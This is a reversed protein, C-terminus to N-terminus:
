KQLSSEDTLKLELRNLARRQKEILFDRIKPHRRLTSNLATNGQVLRVEELLSIVSDYVLSETLGNQSNLNTM